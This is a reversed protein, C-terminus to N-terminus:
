RNEIDPFKMMVSYIPVCSIKILHLSYLLIFLFLMGDTAFLFAM